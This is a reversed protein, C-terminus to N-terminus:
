ESIEEIFAPCREPSTGGLWGEKAQIIKWASVTLGNAGGYFPHNILETLKKHAPSGVRFRMKPKYTSQTGIGGGTWSNPKSYVIIEEEMKEVKEM